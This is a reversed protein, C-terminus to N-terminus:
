WVPLPCVPEQFSEGVKPLPADSAARVRLMRKDELRVNELLDVSDTLKVIDLRDDPALKISPVFTPIDCQDLVDLLGVNVDSAPTSPCTCPLIISGRHCPLIM